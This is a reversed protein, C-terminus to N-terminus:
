PNKGRSTLSLADVVLATNRRADISAAKNLLGKFIEALEEKSLRQTLSQIADPQDALSPLYIAIYEDMGYNSAAQLSEQARRLDREASTLPDSEVKKVRSNRLHLSEKEAAGAAKVPKLQSIRASIRLVQNQAELVQQEKWTQFTYVPVVPEQAVAAACFISILFYLIHSRLM